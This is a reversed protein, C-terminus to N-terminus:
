EPLSSPFAPKWALRPQTDFQSIYPNQHVTMKSAVSVTLKRCATNIGPVSCQFPKLLVEETVARLLVITRFWWQKTRFHSALSGQAWRGKLLLVIFPNCPASAKYTVSSASIWHAGSNQVFCPLYRDRIVSKPDPFSFRKQLCPHATHSVSFTSFEPAGDDQVFRLLYTKRSVTNKGFRSFRFPKLPVAAQVAKFLYPNQIVM